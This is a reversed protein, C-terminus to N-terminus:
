DVVPIIGQASDPTTLIFILAKMVYLKLCFGSCVFKISM